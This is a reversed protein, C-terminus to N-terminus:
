RVGPAPALSADVLPGQNCRVEISEIEGTLEEGLSGYARDTNLNVSTGRFNLDRWATATATPGVQVSQIRDHWDAGNPLDKLTPYRQPGSIFDSAGKFRQADFVRIYCGNPNPANMGVRVPPSACAPAILLGVLLVGRRYTRM